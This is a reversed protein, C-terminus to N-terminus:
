ISNQFYNQIVMKLFAKSKQFNQHKRSPKNNPSPCRHASQKPKPMHYAFNWDDNSPFLREVGKMPTM